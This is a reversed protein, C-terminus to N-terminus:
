QACFSRTPVRGDQVAMHTDTVLWGTKKGALYLGFAERGVQSRAFEALSPEAAVVEISCAVCLLM